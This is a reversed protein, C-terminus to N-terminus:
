PVTEVPVAQRRDLWYRGVLAGGYFVFGTGILWSEVVLLVGVTGYSEANSVVMPDFVLASFVRLGGLGATTALAGPLLSRWGVRGGLLFHQGWWFFAVSMAALLLLREATDWWGPRLVTGTEVEVVLFVTLAGLWLVQRWLHRWSPPPLRWVREYVTQVAAVFSLGFLALSLLSLASATSRVHHDAAFLHQVPAATRGPLGMGDVVWQAFGHQRFPDIAAVVILLPVLTVLGLAAFGMSRQMLELGTGERWLGGPWGRRWRDAWRGDTTRGRVPWSIGGVGHM